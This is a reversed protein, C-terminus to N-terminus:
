KVEREKTEEEASHSEYAPESDLASVPTPPPLSKYGAAQQTLSDSGYSMRTPGAIAGYIEKRQPRQPSLYRSAVM